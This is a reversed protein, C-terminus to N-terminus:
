SFDTPTLSATVFQVEDRPADRREVAKGDALEAAQPAEQLAQRAIAIQAAVYDARDNKGKYSFLHQVDAGVPAALRVPGIKREVSMGPDSAVSNDQSAPVFYLYALASAAGVFSVAALGYATRRGFVGWQVSM